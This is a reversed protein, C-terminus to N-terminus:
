EITMDDVQAKLATVQADTLNSARDIEFSGLSRNTVLDTVEIFITQDIDYAYTVRVPSDKPHPPIPLEKSGVTHVYDLDTGDGETVEIKIARQNDYVTRYDNSRKVPIHTNHPIIISNFTGGKGNLAVVGLSQSTVDSLTITPLGYYDAAVAPSAGTRTLEGAKTSAEGAMLNHAYIAAGVAVAVDPNVEFKLSAGSLGELMTKVMPMRSSGGVMVIQDIDSWTKGADKLLFEVFEQTRRLLTASAREFQERTIVVRYTKGLASVMITTKIVNSLSRKAMEAKEMIQAMLEEDNEEDVVCGQRSLDALILNAMEKDFDDGGLRSDGEIGIVKFDSGNIELLTADFTGGGLDYVLCTGQQNSDLGYAIAAATPENFVRLVNIGAIKGAQKTATRRADDFYAPVTVVADTVPEGLYLEADQVLRKLIIASIQEATFVGGNPSYFRYSPEGMMRKVSRVTARPDGVASNKAMLGVLPVEQGDDTQPFFVVSPTTDQGESNPLVEATHGDRSLAVASYTTGLDIGVVAM